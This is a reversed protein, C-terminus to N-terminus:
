ATLEQELPEVLDVAVAVNETSNEKEEIKEERDKVEVVSKDTKKTTRPKVKENTDIEEKKKKKKKEPDAVTATTTTATTTASPPPPNAAM